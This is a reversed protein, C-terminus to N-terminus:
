CCRLVFFFFFSVKDCNITYSIPNGNIETLTWTTLRNNLDQQQQQQKDRLVLDFLYSNPSFRLGSKYVLGNEDIKEIRARNTELKLGLISKVHKNCYKTNVVLDQKAMPIFIARAFPLRKIQLCITENNKCKFVLAQLEQLKTIKENNVSIIMDGVYVKQTNNTSALGAIRIFSNQVILDFLFFSLSNNVM